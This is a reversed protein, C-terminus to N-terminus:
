SARREVRSWDTPLQTLAPDAGVAPPVELRPFETHRGFRLATASQAPRHLEPRRLEEPGGAPDAALIALRDGHYPPSVAGHDRGADPSRLPVVPTSSFTTGCPFLPLNTDLDPIQTLIAETARRKRADAGQDVKECWVRVLRFGGVVVVALGAALGLPVSDLLVAVPLLAGGALLAMHGILRRGPRDVPATAIDSNTTM